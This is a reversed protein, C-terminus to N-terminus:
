SSAEPSEKMVVDFHLHSTLGGSVDKEKGPGLVDNTIVFLILHVAFIFLM